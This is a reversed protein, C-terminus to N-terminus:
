KGGQEKKFVFNKVDYVSSVHINYKEALVSAKTGDKLAKRIDKAMDLTLKGYEKKEKVVKDKKVKAEKKAPAKKEASKKEIMSQLSEIKIAKRNGDDDTLRITKGGKDKSVFSSNKVTRVLNTESIEYKSYPKALKKYEAM